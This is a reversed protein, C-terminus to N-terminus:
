EGCSYRFPPTMHGPFGQEVFAADIQAKHPAAALLGSSDSDLCLWQYEIAQIVENTDFAKMWALFLSNAIAAGLDNDADVLNRRVKWLASTLVRRELQGDQHCGQCNGCPVESPGEPCDGCFIIDTQEADFSRNGLGPAYVSQGMFYLAWVNALGEGFGGGSTGNGNSYLRNLWHGLEHYIISPFAMNKCQPAQVGGDRSFFVFGDDPAGICRRFGNAAQNCAPPTGEFNPRLEFPVPQASSPDGGSDITLDTPDIGHVWDRLEQLYHYTSAASVEIEGGGNMIIVNTGLVLNKQKSMDVCPLCPQTGDDPQSCITAYLGDYDVEVTIGVLSLPVNLRGNADTTGLIPKSGNPLVRRVHAYKVPQLSYNMAVPDYPTWDPAGNLVNAKVYISIGGMQQSFYHVLDQRDVMSAPQLASIGYDYALLQGSADFAWAETRWVLVPVRVGNEIVRAIRLVPDGIYEATIGTDALFAAGAAAQAEATTVQPTTNFGPGMPLAQNDISLLHDQDNFLCNVWGDEVPVGSVEQRFRVSRKDTVGVMGLPLFTVRDDVLTGSVIGPAFGFIGAAEELFERARILRKGDDDPSYTPDVAAGNILMRAKQTPEDMLVQWTEGYDVRWQDLAVQVDAPLQQQSTALPPAVVTALLVAIM